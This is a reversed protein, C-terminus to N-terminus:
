DEKEGNQELEKVINVAKIKGYLDCYILMNNHSIHIEKHGKMSKKTDRNPNKQTGIPIKKHGKM